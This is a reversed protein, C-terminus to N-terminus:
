WSPPIGWHVYDTRLEGICLLSTKQKQFSYGTARFGRGLLISKIQRTRLSASYYRHWKQLNRAVNPFPSPANTHGHVLGYPTCCSSITPDIKTPRSWNGLQSLREHSQDPNISKALLLPCRYPPKKKKKKKKRWFESEM